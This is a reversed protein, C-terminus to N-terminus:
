AENREGTGAILGHFLTMMSAQIKSVATAGEDEERLFYLVLAQLMQFITEPDATTRLAGSDQHRRFFAVLPAGLSLHAETVREEVSPYIRYIQRFVAPDLDTLLRPFAEALRELQEAVGGGNEIVSSLKEQTRRIRTLVADGLITEKSAVVKYLTRKSIGVTAALDATNWGRIGREVTLRWVESDIRRRLVDYDKSM